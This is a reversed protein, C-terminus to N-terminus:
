TEENRGPPNNTPPTPAPSDMNLHSLSEVVAGSPTVAGAQNEEEDEYELLKDDEPTIPTTGGGEMIPQNGGPTMLDIGGDVGPEDEM